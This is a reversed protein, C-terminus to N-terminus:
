RQIVVKYAGQVRPRRVFYVGPILRRVDNAGPHLAMVQRGTMDFLATRITFPSVPLRLVGNVVTATFRSDCATPRRSDEIGPLPNMKGWIRDTDYTKGGVTGAWGQYVLFMQSGSGRCLAPAWQSSDQRVVPGEAFVVGAPTVRAGYFDFDSGSRYDHWVVLSSAGDFGLAPAYQGNAAQSIVLGSTDLVAGAPTVRAGYIDCDSGSRNGDWAVLFNTGDFAIAPYEPLDPYMTVLIGQPDLVAGAPTVRAGYINMLPSDQWVVLFNAGDFALAPYRPEDSAQSIVFGSSDLVTGGPTVRAGYIDVGSRYDQWVVLLNTGDFGIAPHQQASAAHSIVFGLPDLVTGQPTVRAGYIDYVDPYSRQDQWVVLFNAGDFGIAPDEQAQVAQSIVFGSPDLVTGGPTVRAGYIDFYWGIRADRWAVLFNAGDFAVAPEARGEESQVISTDILFEGADFSQGVGSAPRTVSRVQRVVERADFGPQMAFAASLWCGVALLVSVLKM